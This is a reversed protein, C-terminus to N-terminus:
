IIICQDYNYHKSKCLQAFQYHIERGTSSSPIVTGNPLCFDDEPDDNWTGLLGKTQNKFSKPAAFIISLAEKVDTITVSIGTPFAVAFSNSEPRSVAVSGNLRLSENTLSEYKFPQGDILM